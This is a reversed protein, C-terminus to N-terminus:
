SPPSVINGADLIAFLTIFIILRLYKIVHHDVKYSWYKISKKDKKSESSKGVQSYLDARGPATVSGLCSSIETKHKCFVMKGNRSLDTFIYTAEVKEKIHSVL